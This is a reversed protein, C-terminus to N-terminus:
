YATYCYLLIVTHVVEPVKSSNILCYVETHVVESVNPLNMLCYVNTHVEPVNSPKM